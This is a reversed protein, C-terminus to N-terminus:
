AKKRHKTIFFDLIQARQQPNVANLLDPLCNIRVGGDQMTPGMAQPNNKLLLDATRAIIEQEERQYWLCAKRGFLLQKLDSELNKPRITALWGEGRPDATILEPEKKLRPNVTLIAGSLPSIVPLIYDELIIHACCEGQGTFSGGRPLIVVKLTTILQSLLYNIGIRVKEPDEVQAWCHDPHYFVSGNIQASPGSKLTGEVRNYDEWEQFDGEGSEENTIAQDFPCIECQYNRDCLKYSILGTTMWICRREEEPILPYHKNKESLPTM